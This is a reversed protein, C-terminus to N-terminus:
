ICLLLLSHVDFDPDSSPRVRAGARLPDQRDPVVAALLQPRLSRLRPYAGLRHSSADEVVPKPAATDQVVGPEGALEGPLGELLAVAGGVDPGLQGRPPEPGRAREARGRSSPAERRAKRSRRRSRGPAKVPAASRALISRKRRPRPYEPAAMALVPLPLSRSSGHRPPIPLLFCTAPILGHLLPHTRGGSGVARRSGLERLNEESSSWSRCRSGIPTGSTSRLARAVAHHAGGGEDRRPVRREEEGVRAHVLELVDEQARLLAVVLAGGGALLADPGAPLVVVQFVHAARGAM